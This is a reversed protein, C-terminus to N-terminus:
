HSKHFPFYILTSAFVTNSFAGFITGGSKEKIVTLTSGRYLICSSFQYWSKGHYYSSYLLSWNNERCDAPMASSVVFIDSRTLINSPELVKQVPVGSLSPLKLPKKLLAFSIVSKVMSRLLVRGTENAEQLLPSLRAMGMQDKKKLIDKWGTAVVDFLLSMLLSPSDKVYKILSDIFAESNCLDCLVSIVLVFCPESEKGKRTEEFLAKFADCLFSV